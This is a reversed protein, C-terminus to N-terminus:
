AAKRKLINQKFLEITLAALCDEPTEPSDVEMRFKSWHILDDGAVSKAYGAKYDFPDEDGGKMLILSTNLLTAPLKRLLYSLDYAPVATESPAIYRKVEWRDLRPKGKDSIYLYNRHSYTTDRWGSLKFLEQCLERSAVAVM